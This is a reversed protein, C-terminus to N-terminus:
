LKWRGVGEMGKGFPNIERGCNRTGGTGEAKLDLVM